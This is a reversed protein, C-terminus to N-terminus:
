SKTPDLDKLTKGEPLVTKSQIIDLRIKLDQIEKLEVPDFRSDKSIANVTNEILLTILPIKNLNM